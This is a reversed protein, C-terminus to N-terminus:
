WREPLDVLIRRRIANQRADPDSLRRHRDHSLREPYTAREAYEAEYRPSPWAVAFGDADPRYLPNLRLAADALPLAIGHGPGLRLSSGSRARDEVSFAEVDALSRPSASRPRRAEVLAQTLEQDDYVEGEPFMQAVADASMAHGSSLTDVGANHIHSLSM